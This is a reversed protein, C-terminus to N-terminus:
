QSAEEMIATLEREVAQATATLGPQEFLGLLVTPKIMSMTTQGGDTYVAIRCPLATAISTDAELVKKAQQPQCVEYIRCHKGFTLGHKAMSTQLDHVALVGFQHRKVAAELDAGVREPPKKTHVTYLADDHSRGEIAGPEDRAVRLGNAVALLESAEHILVALGVGMLGALAAPILVALLAVSFIVNQLSIVRARRGLRFAYPVKTLDDAMLAVDAAEIAADTGATGMAMGVAARALAPADNIGDGVMAVAGYRQALAEVAAIKEDPKLDAQVDDLGLESAIARATLASDGTVMAIKLGMQHLTQIVGAAQPRIADRLAILGVLMRESGVLVLSKGEQRLRDLAPIAAPSHGLREFLGPQGVYVTQEGLTAHAGSGAVARFQTASLTRVGRREAYRVIAQALPHESFREVNYAWELLQAETGHVPVVDTVIPEGRTLTGTKDFAVVKITGLRELPVGGKILVGHRGARGIGAAIAVPTSMVLACPAAAVLLVVARTAWFAISAGCLPPILLVLLASVLVGPSYWRSFREIFLQARGKQAQAHEVLQIIKSLTNDQFAATVRIELAGEQNITAAFVPMGERKEVPLAEGTVPAENVSSHGSIIVGDTPISEGPRVRFREGVQLAEAPILAERGDRVVRAEKPALDLLARISHRTRAYTYEELGEAAGYLFVLFAAEDWMGLVTSGLTAAAMLIEIGVEREHLLEELGERAWHFGGLAIAVVYLSIEAWHPLIGLHGLGFALGTLAGGLLVDRM